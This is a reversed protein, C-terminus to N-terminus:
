QKLNLKLQGKIQENDSTSLLEISDAVGRITAKGYEVSSISLKLNTFRCFATNGNKYQPIPNIGAIKVELKEDYIEKEPINLLIKFRTGEIEETVKQAIEDYKKYPEASSLKFVDTNGLIDNNLNIFKTKVEM